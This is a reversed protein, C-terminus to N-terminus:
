EQRKVWLQLFPMQEWSVAWAGGQQPACISWLCWCKPWSCWGQRLKGISCVQLPFSITSLDDNTGPHTVPVWFNQGKTAQKDFLFSLTWWNVSSDIGTAFALSTKIIPWEQHIKAPKDLNTHRLKPFKKERKFKDTASETNSMKLMWILITHLATKSALLFLSATDWHIILFHQNWLWLSFLAKLVKVKISPSLSNNTKFVCFLNEM